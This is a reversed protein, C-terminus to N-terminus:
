PPADVVFATSPEHCPHFSLTAAGSPTSLFDLGRLGFGSGSVCLCTTFVPFAVGGPPRKHFTPLRGGDFPDSQPGIVFHWTRTTIRATPAATRSFYWMAAQQRAKEAWKRRLGPRAPLKGPRRQLRGASIRRWRRWGSREAVGALRRWTNPCRRNRRWPRLM